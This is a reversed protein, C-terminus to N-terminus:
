EPLLPLLISLTDPCCRHAATWARLEAWPVFRTEEVEGDVFTYPGDHVAAYIRGLVRVDGDEYVGEGLVTLEDVEIGAEEALERRAAVL